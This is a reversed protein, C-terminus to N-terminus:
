PALRKGMKQHEIGAEFFRAGLSAWGLKEYFQVVAAQAHLVLDRAGVSRAHAEVAAMLGRGLGTGRLEPLVAVREVKHQAGYPRLCACGIARGHADRALFHAREGDKGDLEDAEPVGQEEIFVRRRIAVAEDPARGPHCAITVGRMPEM